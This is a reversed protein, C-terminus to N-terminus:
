RRQTETKQSDFDYHYLVKDISHESKLLPKLRVAYDADEGFNVEKFPVQLALERKVCMLHNPLRFYANPENRDADFYMSYYCIKPVAGNISVSVNFTIIDAGTEIGELLEKIYDASIRDDDDIFSVYQGHAMNILRNRKEGVTIEKNDKCYIIELGDLFYIRSETYLSGETSKTKRFHKYMYQKSLSLFMENFVEERGVITPILISLKIM